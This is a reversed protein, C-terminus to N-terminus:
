HDREADCDGLLGRLPAKTQDGSRTWARVSGQALPCTRSHHIDTWLGQTSPPAIHGRTPRTHLKGPLNAATVRVSSCSIFRNRLSTQTTYCNVAWKYGSAYSKGRGRKKQVSGQYAAGLVRATKRIEDCDSHTVLCHGGAHGPATSSRALKGHHRSGVKWQLSCM